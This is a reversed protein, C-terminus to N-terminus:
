FKIGGYCGCFKATQTWVEVCPICCIHGLSGHSQSHSRDGRNYACSICCVLFMAVLATIGYAMLQKPIRSPPKDLRLDMRGVVPPDFRFAGADGPCSRQRRNCALGERTQSFIYFLNQTSVSRLHVHSVGVDEGAFEIYWGMEDARPDPVHGVVLACHRMMNGYLDLSDTCREYEQLVTNTYLESWLIKKGGRTVAIKWRAARHDPPTGLMVRGDPTMYLVEKTGFKKTTITFTDSVLAYTGRHCRRDVDACFGKKCLCTGHRGTHGPANASCDARKEGHTGAGSLPTGLFPDHNGSACQTHHVLIDGASSRCRQSTDKICM